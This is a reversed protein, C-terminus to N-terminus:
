ENDVFDNNSMLSQRVYTTYLRRGETFVNGYKESDMINKM